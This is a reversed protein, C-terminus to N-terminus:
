CKVMHDEEINKVMCNFTANILGFKNLIIRVLLHGSGDQYRPWEKLVDPLNPMELGQIYSLRRRATQKWEMIVRNLPQRHVRLWRMSAEM